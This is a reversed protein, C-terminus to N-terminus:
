GLAFGASVRVGLEPDHTVAELLHDVITATAAGRAEEIPEDNGVLLALAYATAARVQWDADSLFSLIRRWHQWITRVTNRKHEDVMDAVDGRIIRAERILRATDEPSKLPSPEYWGVLRGLLWVVRHRLRHSRQEAIEVLFPVVFPSTERYGFDHLAESLQSLSRLVSDSDPSTLQRIIDPLYETSGHGDDLDRWPIHNLIELM